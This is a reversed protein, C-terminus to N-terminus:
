GKVRVRLFNDQKEVLKQKHWEEKLIGFNECFDVGLFFNELSLEEATIEQELIEGKRKFVLVRNVGINRLFWEDHSVVLVGGKFRKLADELMEITYIDLHNTPEDLIILDPSGAFLTAIQIRRIEGSSFDGMKRKSVDTFLVKGLIQGAEEESVAVAQRFYDLVGQQLNIEGPRQPLYGIKGAKRIQGGQPKLEGLILRLFTTKGSGNPGVIGVREGGRLSFSLGSFLEEQDPYRFYLGSIGVLLGKVEREKVEFAPKKPPKPEPISSLEKEIRQLQVKAQKAISAGKARYFANRSINEFEQAKRKLAEAAKELEERRRKQEEYARQQAEFMEKKKAAYFSYNGGFLSVTLNEEDIELIEEVTKDLFRRDHSVLLLSFNGELIWRELFKLAQFDLNNTPEDLLVLNPLSILVGALAVRNAEGGSIEEIRRKLFNESLGLGELIMRRKREYDWIDFAEMLELVEGYEELVAPSSDTELKKGLEQWRKYIEGVELVCDDLYQEVTGKFNLQIEQPLYGIRTLPLVELEGEIEVGEPWTTKGSKALITELLTTKGGGNRGILAIKRGACIAFNAEKILPKGRRWLSFDRAVVGWKSWKKGSIRIPSM